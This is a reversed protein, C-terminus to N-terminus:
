ENMLRKFRPLSRLPDFWPFRKARDLASPDDRGVRELADLAADQEGLLVRVYAENPLNKVPRGAAVLRRRTDAIVARASDALGSRALVAAAYYRGEPSVRAVLPWLGGREMEAVLMWARAIDAKGRGAWGLVVLECPGLSPDRPYRSATEACLAKASDSRGAWLYAFFLRSITMPKNRVYPDAALARRVALLSGPIDGNQRLVASLDTWGRAFNPGATTAAVLDAQASDLLAPAAGPASNWKEYRLSGRLGIAQADGPRRGLAERALVLGTDIIPAVTANPEYSAHRWRIWGREIVPDAWHPDAAAALALLSDARSRIAAVPGTSGDGQPVDYETEILDQARQRLEWARQSGTGARWERVQVEAGIKRLIERAVDHVVTDRLTLLMARPYRGRVAGKEILSRADVLRVDVQISDSRSEVVGTVVTGVNLRSAVSDIRTGRGIQEIGAESIITLEPVEELSYILDRTFWRGMAALSSDGSPADFYLVAIRRPDAAATLPSRARASWMVAAAAGVLILATIALLPAHRRVARAPKSPRTTDPNALVDAFERASAYRDAPVKALSREIAREVGEPVQPRVLRISPVPASMHRAVISQATPGTFPPQGALMEFLVCGLSYIDSRGDISREASGQEPSMYVPTGITLGTSTVRQIDVAQEIARAIGFDVVVVRGDNGILINAPKIDRHVINQGHAYDLAEAVEHAIHVARDLPLQGEREILERLSEGAIYPMMYYIVSASQGAGLVPVIRPHELRSAVLIERRFRELNVASAQESSLTKVVIWRSTSLEEAVFVHAMGGSSLGRDIRYADGIALQLQDRLDSSL